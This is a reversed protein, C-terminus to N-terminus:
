YLFWLLYFHEEGELYLPKSGIQLDRQWWFFLIRSILMIFKGPSSCRGAGLRAGTVGGGERDWLSLVGM